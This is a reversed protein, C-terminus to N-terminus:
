SVGCLQDLRASAATAAVGDAQTYTHNRLMEIESRRAAVYQHATTATNLSVVRGSHGGSLAM